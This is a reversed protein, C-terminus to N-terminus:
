WSETCEYWCTYTSITKTSVTNNAEANELWNASVLVQRGTPLMGTTVVFSSLFQSTTISVIIILCIFFSYSSPMVHPSLSFGALEHQIKHSDASQM